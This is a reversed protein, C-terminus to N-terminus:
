ASDGRGDGDETLYLAEPSPTNLIPVKSDVWAVVPHSDKFHDGWKQQSPFVRSCWPCITATM